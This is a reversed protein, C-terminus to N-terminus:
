ANFTKPEPPKKLVNSRTSQYTILIGSGVLALGIWGQIMSGTLFGNIALYVGTSLLAGGITQLMVFNPQNAQIKYEPKNMPQADNM